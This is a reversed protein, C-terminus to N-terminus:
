RRRNIQHRRLLNETRPNGWSLPWPGNHTKVRLLCLCNLSPRHWNLTLRPITFALLPSNHPYHCFHANWNNISISLSILRTHFVTRKNPIWRLSKVVKWVKRSILSYELLQLGRVKDEQVSRSYHPGLHWYQSATSLQHFLPRCGPLTIWRTPCMQCIDM